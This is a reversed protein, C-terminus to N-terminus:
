PVVRRGIEGKSGVGSHTFERTGTWDADSLVRSTSKEQHAVSPHLISRQWPRVDSGVVEWEEPDGCPTEFVRNGLVLYEACETKLKRTEPPAPGTKVEGWWAPVISYFM